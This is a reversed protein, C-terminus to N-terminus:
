EEAVRKVRSTARALDKPARTAARQKLAQYSKLRAQWEKEGPDGISYWLSLLHKREDELLRNEALFRVRSPYPDDSEIPAPASRVTMPEPASEDDFYGVPLGFIEAVKQRNMRAQLTDGDFGRGDRVWKRVNDYASKRGMAGGLATISGRGKQDLLAGLKQHPKM